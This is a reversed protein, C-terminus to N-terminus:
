EIFDIDDLPVAYVVVNSDYSRTSRNFAGGCTILTLVPPGDRSFIAETPLETKEYITRAEARFTETVGDDFDVYIVDGTEITRLDFFAGPGQGALDVHAALVASGADGPAPGHKYWAVDTVNRPVEMDGNPEVGAALVPAEVDIAPIRLTVPIREHSQAHQGITFRPIAPPPAAVESASADPPDQAPAVPTPSDTTTTLAQEVSAADGVEIEPRSVLWWGFSAVLLIFGTAVLLLGRKM